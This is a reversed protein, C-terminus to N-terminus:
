FEQLNNALFNIKLLAAPLFSKNTVKLIQGSM